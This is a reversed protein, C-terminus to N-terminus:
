LFFLKVISIFGSISMGIIAGKITKKIKDNCDSIIGEDTALSRRFLQYIVMVIAGSPIVVLLWDVWQTVFIIAEIFVM